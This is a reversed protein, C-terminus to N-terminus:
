YQSSFDFFTFSLLAIKTVRFGQFREQAIGIYLVGEEQHFNQLRKKTEDDKRQGKKFHVTEIDHQRSFRQIDAVFARSMPAMLTTSAVVAGRHKKFFASVGGGSQLM